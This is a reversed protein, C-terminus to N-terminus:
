SLLREVVEPWPPVEELLARGTVGLRAALARDGFLHDFAAAVSRPDPEVVFGTRGDLVFDLLGGGDSLTVVPRRAAFAEIPVDDCPGHCVALAGLVIQQLREDSPEVEISIRERLGHHEILSRLREEDASRGAVVLRIGSRVHRMAEIALSQRELGEFRSPLVVVDGYPGPMSALLSETLPSRHYLRESTIRLSDWLRRQAEESNVFVREAEDLALRAAARTAERVMVGYEPRSIDPHESRGSASAQWPEQEARHEHILWVIKRGHPVLYAPFRLPIVADIPLGNSESLDLARWVGMHHMLESRPSWRGAVLVVDADHGKQRLAQVLRDADRETDDHGFPTTARCVAVRM